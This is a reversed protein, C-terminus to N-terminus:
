TAVMPRMRVIGFDRGKIKAMRGDPHHFVVGEIDAHASLYVRLGEFDRPVDDLVTAGHRLLQHVSFGEIGGQSKPGVLEYTGDPPLGGVVAERFYQDEPGGADVPVWGVTKGTEEDAHSVEFDPPAPKGPKIERRKYFRGARVMACMGDYKRTAVGEGTTVWVCDAHSIPLVRSRDGNWDREFMTPIKKM